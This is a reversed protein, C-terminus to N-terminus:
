EVKITGVMGQEAHGPVTCIVSYQGPEVDVTLEGSDGPQIDPTAALEAGAEEPDKGEAITFNHPIQGTNEAVISDGASATIDNPVFEYENMDVTQGGGAPEETAVTEEDDDGGCGTAFAITAAALLLALVRFAPM